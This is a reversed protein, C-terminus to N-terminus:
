LPHVSEEGRSLNRPEKIPLLVHSEDGLALLSGEPVALYNIGLLLEVLDKGVVNLSVEM